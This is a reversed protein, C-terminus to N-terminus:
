LILPQQIYLLERVAEFQPIGAMDGDNPLERITPPLSAVGPLQGQCAEITYPEKLSWIHPPVRIESWHTTVAPCQKSSYTNNWWIEKRWKNQQLIQWINYM